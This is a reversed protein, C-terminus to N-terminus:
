GGGHRKILYIPLKNREFMLFAYGNGSILSSSCPHANKGRGNLFQAGVIINDGSKEAYRYEVQYAAPKRSHLKWIRIYGDESATLIYASEPAVSLSTIQRFHINLEALQSGNQVSYVLVQGYYTGCFAQRRLINIVSIQHGTSIRKTVTKM